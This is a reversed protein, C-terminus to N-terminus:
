DAPNGGLWRSKFEAMLQERSVAAGNWQKLNETIVKMGAMLHQNLSAYRAIEGSLREGESHLMDRVRQLELIVQDIEETSAGAVRRILGNLHEAAPDNTPDAESRQQHLFSVDRRFERIEGEVANAAVQDVDSLKKPARRDPPAYQEPSSKEPGVAGLRRINDTM